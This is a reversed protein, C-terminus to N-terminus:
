LNLIGRCQLDSRNTVFNCRSEPCKGEITTNFLHTFWYRMPLASFPTWLLITKITSMRPYLPPNISAWSMVPWYTNLWSSNALKPISQLKQKFFIFYLYMHQTKKATLWDAAQLKIIDRLTASRVQEDSTLAHRDKWITFIASIM